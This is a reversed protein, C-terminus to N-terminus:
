KTDKSMSVGELLYDEYMDAAMFGILPKTLVKSNQSLLFSAPAVKVTIGNPLAEKDKNIVVVIYEKKLIQSIKQNELTQSKLKECWTCNNQTVVLLILKNQAKAKQAAQNYNHEADLGFLFTSAVVLFILLKKMNKVM